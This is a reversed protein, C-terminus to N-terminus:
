PHILASGLFAGAMLGVLVTGLSFILDSNLWVLLRLGWYGGKYGDMVMQM